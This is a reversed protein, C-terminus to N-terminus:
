PPSFFNESDHFRKKKKQLCCKCYLSHSFSALRLLNKNDTCSRYTSERGKICCILSVIHVYVFESCTPLKECAYFVPIANMLTQRFGAVDSSSRNLNAHDM